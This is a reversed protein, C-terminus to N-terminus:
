GKESSGFYWTNLANQMGSRRNQWFPQREFRPGNSSSGPFCPFDPYHSILFPNVAYPPVPPKDVLTSSRAISEKRASITVSPREHVRAGHAVAVGQALRLRSFM